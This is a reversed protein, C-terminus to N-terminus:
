GTVLEFGANVWGQPANSPMGAGGNLSVADYGLLRLSAVAQGATQGTYCYVVIKKDKPLASLDNLMAKGFPINIAGPIHGKQYDEAKRVSLIVIDEKADIAAKLDAESIKYNKYKDTIQVMKGYYDAVAKAVNANVPYTKDPLTNATTETVDAVGEVKSIGFNWGLNVSRAKIGAANLTIVAQGATQGTYCYVFVDKDQPIKALNDSIATGWPINVAGKVHGKEYDAAGRIDLIVLSEGAKVKDVFEKEAIKYIHDPMNAVLAKVVSEVSAEATGTVLEFGANVWGQPANSPMGAGGNLSVADYGLLRLSAVAQGATQGTYCYVVIKKDKPLASLDNLMAKGFPINIAGPIHGKQYDEAKRVSLIVIDEKADIAAKLDAESIKYNKYKDTIQVMKGYYDAVAKAVNANVPYTKDPLTNATTETVDAVGEVKSIGFNWGLNVSRAKIGAANLTIVAQGATQGTYCYVFVDKDQPIKALNDSIATGWPINVAGKVHGKEYDAAGRIDLIVLSEGAKVKDVFEKEAIKYIHDPMNAVLAKVVSEVSAEATGTVLEFGANVWGQPANSPMGAGGNLSVADYGLLRLSAVAQGATQGTYCYVVIKKDKPLTSLDNLMAKGFPINIAGPIHGKQYDEAKRVSLIVIDEKADIAAKLDAESIKYNKYKDTIQVMKGYYDAVAKAVNANVPYTKDPLTNATTETVDAVGEVKSIGFNWGLNVSRAKIGAANLTIVAQGATQGTYCYVFVDKDQPIKALNDSIATGWPINVAGKVHGKEYDAAGRIDLIVLSEGAKVKDVFEKEAIKYIHDPMNAVLAKVVSEVSAEAPKTTTAATTAATTNTATMTPVSTATQGCAAVTLALILLLAVLTLKKM